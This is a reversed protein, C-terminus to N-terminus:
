SEKMELTEIKLHTYKSIANEHMLSKEVAESNELLLQLDLQVDQAIHNM